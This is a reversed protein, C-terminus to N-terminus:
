YRYLRRFHNSDLNSVRSTLNTGCLSILQSKTLKSLSPQSNKLSTEAFVQPEWKSLMLLGLPTSSGQTRSRSNTEFHRYPIKNM